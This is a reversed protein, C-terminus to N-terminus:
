LWRSSRELKRYLLCLREIEIIDPAASSEANANFFLKDSTKFFAETPAQLSAYKPHRDFFDALQQTFLTEGALENLAHHFCQMAKLNIQQAPPQKKLFKLTRCAKGFAGSYRELFPAKGYFWVIYFSLVSIAALLYALRVSLAGNDLLEPPMEPEPELDADAISKPILPTYSFTWAPVNEILSESQHKFHLPMPPLTLETPNPVSKFLQYTITLAYDYGAAPQADTIASLELWGNLPGPKPLFGIELRYFLATKIQATLTIKDGLSYGYRHPTILDIQIPGTGAFSANSSILCLLICILQLFKPNM